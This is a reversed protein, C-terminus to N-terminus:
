DKYPCAAPRARIMVEVHQESSMAFLQQAFITLNNRQIPDNADRYAAFRMRGMRMYVPSLMLARVFYDNMREGVDVGLMRWGRSAQTQVQAYMNLFDRDFFVKVLVYTPKQLNDTFLAVQFAFKSRNPLTHIDDLGADCKLMSRSLEINGVIQAIYATEDFSKGKSLSQAMNAM